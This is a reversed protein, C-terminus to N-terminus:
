FWFFRQAGTLDLSHKGEKFHKRQLHTKLCDKYWTQFDCHGCQYKDGGEHTREHDYKNSGKAFRKGCYKCINSQKPPRFYWDFEDHFNKGHAQLSWKHNFTMFCIPCKCKTGDLQIMEPAKPKGTKGIAGTALPLKKVLNHSAEHSLRIRNTKFELECHTCKWSGRTNFNWDFESHYRRGHGQMDYKKGFESDCIPCIYRGDKEIYQPAKPKDTLGYFQGDKTLKRMKTGSKTLGNIKPKEEKKIDSKEDLEELKESDSGRWEPDDDSIDGGFDSEDVVEETEEKNVKLRELIVVPQVFIKAAEEVEEVKVEPKLTPELLALLYSQKDHVGIQFKNFKIVQQYCANCILQSLIPNEVM